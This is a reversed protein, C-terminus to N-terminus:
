RDVAPGTPEGEPEGQDPTEAERSRSREAQKADHKNGTDPCWGQVLVVGKRDCHSVTTGDTDKNEANAGAASLVLAAGMSAAMLTASARRNWEIRQLM